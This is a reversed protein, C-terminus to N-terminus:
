IKTRLYSVEIDGANNNTITLEYNGGSIDTDITVSLVGGVKGYVNDRTSSGNNIVDLNLSRISGDSLRKIKIYYSYGEFSASPESDVISSSSGSVTELYCWWASSDPVLEGTMSNYIM